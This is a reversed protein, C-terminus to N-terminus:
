QVELLEIEFVLTANPPIAPPAGAAGYALEPPFVVEWRSGIQMLQLVEQWGLIVANLPFTTPQNRSYSSDFETGDILSGRYHVTVSSDINPSAGDGEAIVKYLIGTATSIVGEQKAYNARFEDGQMASEERMQNENASIEDRVAAFADLMEQETLKLEGDEKVSDVIGLLLADIDVPVPTSQASILIQAGYQVGLGYSFREQRTELASEQAISSLPAIAILALTLACLMTRSAFM